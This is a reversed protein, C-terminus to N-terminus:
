YTSTFGVFAQKAPGNSAHSFFQLKAQVPQESDIAPVTQQALGISGLQKLNSATELRQSTCFHSL